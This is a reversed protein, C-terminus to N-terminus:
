LANHPSLLGILARHFGTVAGNDTVEPLVEVIGAMGDPLFHFLGPLIHKIIFIFHFMQGPLQFVMFVIFLQHQIVSLRLLPKFEEAAVIIFGGGPFDQGSQTKGILVPVPIDVGKGAPLLYSDVQGCGEHAVGIEEKEIFRGVMQIHIHQLPQLFVETGVFASDEHNGMVAIEQVPRSGTDNIQFIVMDAGEAASIGPVQFRLLVLVPGIFLGIFLLLLMNLFRFFIDAAILCADLGLLGSAALGLQITQYPQFLRHVLCGKAEMEVRGLFAGVLHQIHQPHFAGIIVVDKELVEGDMDFFSLGYAKDAGIAGSLGGYQLEDGSFLLRICAKDLHPVIHFHSVIGLFLFPEM